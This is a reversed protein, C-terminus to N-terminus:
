SELRGQNSICNYRSRNWYCQSYIKDNVKQSVGIRFGGTILKNFVFKSYYNLHSWRNKFYECQKLEDLNKLDKIEKILQTLTPPKISEKSEPVVLAITEALDGVIHCNRLFGYHFKPWKHLM